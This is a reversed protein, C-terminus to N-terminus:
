YAMEPSFWLLWLQKHCAGIAKWPTTKCTQAAILPVSATGRVVKECIRVFRFSTCDDLCCFFVMEKDAEKSM